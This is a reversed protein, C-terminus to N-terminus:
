NRPADLAANLWQTLRLGAREVQGRVVGVSRAQYAPDLEIPEALRTACDFGALPGYVDRLAIERTEVMWQTPADPAPVGRPAAVPARVWGSLAANLLEEDWVSHFTATPRLAHGILRVRAGGGNRNTASHLPMHLDGVLHVVWKLAENRARAPQSRDALVATYHVILQDVCHGDPCPGLKQSCVSNNRVHWGRYAAPDTKQAEARIEDPWSAIQTLRTRGSLKGHRDLDGELLRAVEATATPTLGAAAIAAIAAHGAANWAQALGPLTVFLICVLWRLASM